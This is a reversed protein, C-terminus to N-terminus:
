QISDPLNHATDPVKDMHEWQRVPVNGKRHVRFGTHALLLPNLLVTNDRCPHVVHAPHHQAERPQFLIDIVADGTHAFTFTTIVLEKLAQKKLIDDKSDAKKAIKKDTKDKDATIIDRDSYKYVKDTVKKEWINSFKSPMLSYQLIIIILGSSVM